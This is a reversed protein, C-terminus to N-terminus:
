MVIQDWGIFDVKGDRADPDSSYQIILGDTGLIATLSASSKKPSYRALVRGDEEYL